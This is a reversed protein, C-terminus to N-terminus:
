KPQVSPDGNPGGPPPIVPTKGGGPPATRIDPDLDEPPCIVGQTRALRDSLDEKPPAQGTTEHTDGLTLQDHDACAKPDLKPAPAAEGKPAVNPQAHVFVPAAALALTLALLSIARSPKM